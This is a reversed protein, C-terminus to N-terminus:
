RAARRRVRRCRVARDPCAGPARQLGVLPLDALQAAAQRRGDDANRREDGAQAAHHRSVRTAGGILQDRDRHQGRGRGAVEHGRGQDREEEFDAAEEFLSAREASAGGDVPDAREARSLRHLPAVADFLPDIRVAEHRAVLNEHPGPSRIATSPVTSSPRAATSWDAIM